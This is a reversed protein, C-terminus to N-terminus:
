RSPIGTLLMRSSTVSQSQTEFPCYFFMRRFRDDDTSVVM